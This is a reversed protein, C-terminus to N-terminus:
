HILAKRKKKKKKPVQQINLHLLYATHWFSYVYCLPVNYFIIILFQAKSLTPKFTLCDPVLEVRSGVTRLKLCNSLLPLTHPPSSTYKLISPSACLPAQKRERSVRDQSIIWATYSHLLSIPWIFSSWWSGFTSQLSTM